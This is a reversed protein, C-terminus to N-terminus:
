GTVRLKKVVGIIAKLSTGFVISGLTMTELDESGCCKAFAKGVPWALGSSSPEKIAETYTLMRSKIYAVLAAGASDEKAVDELAEYFADLVTTREAENKLTDWVAFDVAFARLCFLEVRLTDLDITEESDKLTVADEEESGRVLHLLGYALDRATVQDTQVLLHLRPPGSDEELLKDLFRRWVRM